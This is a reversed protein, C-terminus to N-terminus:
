QLVAVNGFRMFLAMFVAAADPQPSLLAFAHSDDLLVSRTVIQSVSSMCAVGVGEFRTGETPAVSGGLTKLLVACQACNWM